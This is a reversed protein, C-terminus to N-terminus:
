APPPSAGRASEPSTSFRLRKRATRPKKSACGAGAGARGHPGIREQRFAEFRRGYWAAELGEILTPEIAGDLEPVMAGMILGAGRIGARTQRYAEFTEGTFLLSLGRLLPVDLREDLAQVGQDGLWWRGHKRSVVIDPEYDIAFPPPRPATGFVAAANFGGEEFARIVADTAQNM